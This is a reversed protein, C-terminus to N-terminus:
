SRSRISRAMKSDRPSSSSATSPTARRARSRSSSTTAGRTGARDMLVIRTRDSEYGPRQMALYALTRGDPSFVPHNDLAKNEATLCRPAVGGAAPVIYLNVDTSWAADRTMLQSAFVVDKGDPSIAIEDIGGFPKTPSDGDFGPMLDLPAGGGITWAFVHSRKGDEWTDWHRFLLSEYVKAKVKSKEREADRKATDDLASAAPLDPYVEITLLLRQGDPFVALNDVDLPLKTLQVPEGGDIPLQWVQSSGSRSSLFVISRGDPMWLGNTDSAEHSTLRRVSTGDVASMWVDTRGKNAEVDTTRVDYLVWKGDPSVQPDSVREMALMDDVGFPHAPPTSPTTSALVSAIFCAAFVM